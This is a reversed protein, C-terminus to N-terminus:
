PTGTTSQGVNFSNPSMWGTKTKRAGFLPVKQEIALDLCASNFEQM